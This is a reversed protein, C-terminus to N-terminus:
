KLNNKVKNLELEYNDCVAKYEQIKRSLEDNLAKYKLVEKKASDLDDKLDDAFDDKNKYQHRLRENEATLDEVQREADKARALIKEKEDSLKNIQDLLSAEKSSAKGDILQEKVVMAGVGVAAGIVLELM